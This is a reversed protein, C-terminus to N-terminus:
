TTYKGYVIALDYKESVKHVDWIPYHVADLVCMWASDNRMGKFDRPIKGSFGGETFWAIKKGM